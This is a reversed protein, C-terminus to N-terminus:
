KHSKGDGYWNVHYPKNLVGEEMMKILLKHNNKNYLKCLTILKEKNLLDFKEEDIRLDLFLLEKLEDITKVTPKVYLIDTIAKEKSAVLIKYEDFRITILGRPYARAPVDRYFFVGFRTDYLKHKNKGHTASTMVPTAEPILGHFSLATEFSLYSPKYIDNAIWFASINPNTEYLGRVIQTIEGSSVSRAIKCKPNKYTSYKKLLDQTTLIM